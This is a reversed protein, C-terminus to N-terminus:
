RQAQNTGNTELTEGTTEQAEGDQPQTDLPGNGNDMTTEPQTTPMTTPVTTQTAATTATTTPVTTMGSNGGRCATFLCLVLVLLLTFPFRKKMKKEESDIPNLPIIGLAFLNLCFFTFFSKFIKNNSNEDIVQIIYPRLM